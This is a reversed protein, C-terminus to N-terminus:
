WVDWTYQGPISGMGWSHSASSQGGSGRSPRHQTIFNPKQIEQDESSQCASSTTVATSDFIIRVNDSFPYREQLTRPLYQTLNKAWIGGISEM